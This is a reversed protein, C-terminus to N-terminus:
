AAPIGEREALKRLAIRVVQSYSVGLKKELASIIKLDERNARMTKNESNKM